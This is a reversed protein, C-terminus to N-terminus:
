LSRTAVDDGVEATPKGFASSNRVELWFCNTLAQSDTLLTFCRGYLMKHFVVALAKKEIQKYCKETLTLSRNRANSSKGSWKSIQTFNSGGVGCASADATVMLPMTPDYHTLLRHSRFLGEIRQFITSVAKDM